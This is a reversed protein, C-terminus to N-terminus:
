RTRELRHRADWGSVLGTSPQWGSSEGCSCVGRWEHVRGTRREEVTVIHVHVVAGVPEWAAFAAALDDAPGHLFCEVDTAHVWRERENDYVVPSECDGCLPRGQEDLDADDDPIADFRSATTASM